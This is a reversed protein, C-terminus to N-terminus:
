KNWMDELEPLQSVVSIAPLESTFVNKGTWVSLAQWFRLEPNSQCFQTFNNLQELSKM